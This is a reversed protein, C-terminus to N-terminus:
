APKLGFISAIADLTKVWMSGAPLDSGVPLQTLYRVTVWGTVGKAASIEAWQGSRDYVNVVVETGNPLNGVVEATMTPNARLNLSDGDRTQVTYFSSLCQNRAVLVGKHPMDAANRNKVQIPMLESGVGALAIAPAICTSVGSLLVTELTLVLSQKM